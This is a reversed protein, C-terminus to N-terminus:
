APSGSSPRPSSRGSAPVSTASRLCPRAGCPSSIPTACSRAMPISCGRPTPRRGRRTSWCPLTPRRSRRRSVRWSARPCPRRPATGPRTGGGPRGDAHGMAQEVGRRDVRGAVVPGLPPVVPAGPLRGPRPHVAGVGRAPGHRVDRRGVPPHPRGGAAAGEADRPTPLLLEDAGRRGRHSHGRLVGRGVAALEPLLYRGPHGQGRRRRRTARGASAVGARPGYLDPPPRPERHRRERRLVGTIRRLMEPITPRYALPPARM